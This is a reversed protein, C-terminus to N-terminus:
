DWYCSCWAVHLSYPKLSFFLHILGSKHREVESSIQTAACLGTETWTKASQRSEQKWIVSWGAFLIIMGHKTHAPDLSCSQSHTWTKSEGQTHALLGSIKCAITASHQHPMGYTMPLFNGFGATASCFFFGLVVHYWKLFMSPYACRRLITVRVQRPQEAGLAMTVQQDGLIGLWWIEMLAGARLKMEPM